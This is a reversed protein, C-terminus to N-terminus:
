IKKYVLTVKKIDSEDTESKEILQFGDYGICEVKIHPNNKSEIINEDIINKSDFANDKVSYGYERLDQILSDTMTKETKFFMKWVPIPFLMNLAVARNSCTQCTKDKKTLFHVIPGIYRSHLFCRLIDGLGSCYRLKLLPDIKRKM